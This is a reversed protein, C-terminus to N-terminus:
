EKLFSEYRHPSSTEDQCAPLACQAGHKYVHYHFTSTQDSRCCERFALLSGEKARHGAPDSPRSTGHSRCSFIPVWPRQTEVVNTSDEPLSSHTCPIAKYPYPLLPSVEVNKPCYAGRNPGEKPNTPTLPRSLPDLRSAPNESYTFGPPVSTPQLGLDRASACHCLRTTPSQPQSWCCHGAEGPPSSCQANTQRESTQSSFPWLLVCSLLAISGEVLSASKSASTQGDERKCCVQELVM